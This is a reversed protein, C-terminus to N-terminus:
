LSPDISREFPLQDLYEIYELPDFPLGELDMQPDPMAKFELSANTVNTWTVGHLEPSDPYKEEWLEHRLKMRNFLQKLHIVQLLM